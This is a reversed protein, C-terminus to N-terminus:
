LLPTGAPRKRRKAEEAQQTAYEEELEKLRKRNALKAVAGM